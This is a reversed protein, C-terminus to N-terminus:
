SDYLDWAQSVILIKHLIWTVAFLNIKLSKHLLRACQNGIREHKHLGYCAQHLGRPALVIYSLSIGLNLAPGLSM